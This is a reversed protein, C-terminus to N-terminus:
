NELLPGAAIESSSETDLRLEMKKMSVLGLESKLMPAVAKGAIFLIFKDSNRIGCSRIAKGVHMEGSLLMLMENAVEKSQMIQDGKRIVANFYAPLVKRLVGKKYDLLQVFGEKKSFKGKKELLQAVTLRSSCLYCQASLKEYNMWDVSKQAKLLHNFEKGSM